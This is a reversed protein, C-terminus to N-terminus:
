KLPKRTYTKLKITSPMSIGTLLRHQGQDSAVNQPTQVTDTNNEYYGLGPGSTIFSKEHEVSNLM